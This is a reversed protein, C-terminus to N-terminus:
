KHGDVKCCEDLNESAVPDAKKDNAGYGAGTIANEIKAIDTKNKDYMVNAVKGKINIDIEHVGDVKQLAKTITKKCMDCQITPLRVVAKEDNATTKVEATQTDDKKETTQNDSKGCSTFALVLLAIYLGAILKFYKTQNLMNPKGKM